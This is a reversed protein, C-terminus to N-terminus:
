AKNRKPVAKLRAKGDEVTVRFKVSDVRYRSKIASVQKKLAKKVSEFQMDTSQGCTRRAEMYSDFIKQYAMNERQRTEAATRRATRELQRTEAERRRRESLAARFKMKPHTGREIQVLNRTLYLDQSNYRARLNQFRFRQRANTVPEQTLDRLMRKVDDRDKVPEIRDIGSFYKEYNLKLLFLRREFEDLRMKFTMDIRTRKAM